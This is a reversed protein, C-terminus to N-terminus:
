RLRDAGLCINAVHWFNRSLTEHSNLPTTFWKPPLGELRGLVLDATSQGLEPPLLTESQSQREAKGRPKREVLHNIARSSKWIWYGCALIVHYLASGLSHEVDKARVFSCWYAENTGRSGEHRMDWRLRESLCINVVHWVTDLFM